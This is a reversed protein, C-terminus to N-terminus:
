RQEKEAHGKKRPHEEGQVPGDEGQAPGFTQFTCHYDLRQSQYPGWVISEIPNLNQILIRVDDTTTSKQKTM